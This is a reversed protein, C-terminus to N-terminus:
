NNVSKTYLDEISSVLGMKIVENLATNFGKGIKGDIGGSQEIADIIIQNKLTLGRAVMWSQMRIIEQESYKTQVTKPTRPHYDDSVLNDTQENDKGLKIYLVISTVIIGIGLLISIILVIRKSNM